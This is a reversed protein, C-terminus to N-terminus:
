CAPIAPASPGQHAVHAWGSGALRSIEALRHEGLGVAADTLICCCPCDLREPASKFLLNKLGLAQTRVRRKAM